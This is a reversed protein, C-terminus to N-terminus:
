TLGFASRYEPIVNGDQDMIMFWIQWPIELEAFIEILDTYYRERDELRSVADYVGFENCLVPVNHDIGWRKAEIIRNRLASRNGARYYNQAQSLVWAENGPTFGLDSYYESWRDISYPYPIDHTSSM